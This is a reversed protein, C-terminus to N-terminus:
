AAFPESPAHSVTSSRVILSTDLLVHRIPAEPNNLRWLILRAAHRGLMEYPQRVTTLTPPHMTLGELDDFGVIAIDEPVRVGVAQLSRTLKIAMIDNVCFVATPRDAARALSQAMARISADANDGRIRIVELDNEPIGHHRMTKRYGDERDAVSSSHEEEYTAFAVRRHGLALLHEVAATAGHINDVGVFDSAFGRPLRDIAVLVAGKAGLRELAPAAHDVDQCWLIVGAVPQKELNELAAAEKQCTGEMTPALTDRFVLRFDHASLEMECGRVVHQFSQFWPENGMLLAVTRPAQADAGTSCVVPRRGPVTEVLGSEALRAVVRSITNRHVGLEAALARESPLRSGTVYRGSRIRTALITYLDRREM